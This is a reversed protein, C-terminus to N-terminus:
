SPMENEVDKILSDVKSKWSALVTATQDRSASCDYIISWFDDYTHYGIIGISRLPYSKLNQVEYYISRLEDSLFRDDDHNYAPDLYFRIFYSGGKPNRAGRPIGFCKVAAANCYEQGAPSPFPVAGFADTMKALAADKAMLYDECDYMAVKGSIFDDVTASATVKHVYRLQTDYQWAKLLLPDSLNNVIKTKGNQVTFKVFDTGASRMITSTGVYAGVVERGDITGTLKQCTDLFTDWNWKGEKWLKDPTDKIRARSFLNKNWYIFHNAVAYSSGKLAVGYYQNGWAYMDMININYIPDNELDFKGVSIPSMLNKTIIIPWWDPQISAVDPAAGSGVLASLKSLYLNWTTQILSVKIGTKQTFEDIIEKQGADWWLVRVTSKKVDDSINAFPDYTSQPPLTSVTGSATTATGANNSATTRLISNNHGTTSSVASPDQTGETAQTETEKTNGQSSVTPSGSDSSSEIPPTKGGCAVMSLTLMIVALLSLFSLCINKCQKEM